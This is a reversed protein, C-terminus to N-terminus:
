EIVVELLMPSTTNGDNQGYTVFEVEWIQGEELDLMFHTKIVTNIKAIVMEHTNDYLNFNNYGSGEVMTYDASTLQYSNSAQAANSENLVYNPVVQWYSSDAPTERVFTVLATSDITGLDGGAYFKFQTTVLEGPNGYLHNICEPLYTEFPLTSSFNGYKQINENSSTAYDDDTLEYPANSSYEAETALTRDAIYIYWDDDQELNDELNDRFDDLPDCSIIALAFLIFLTSNFLKM